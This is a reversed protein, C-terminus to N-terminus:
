ADVKRFHRKLHRQADVAASYLAAEGCYRLWSIDSERINVVCGCSMEHVTTPLDYELHAVIDEVCVGLVLIGNLVHEYKESTTLEGILGCHRGDCPVAFHVHGTTSLVVSVRCGCDLDLEHSVSDM